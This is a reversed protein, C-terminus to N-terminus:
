DLNMQRLLAAFRPDGRLPDYVPEVKLTVMSYVREQYAKRLWHLARDHDALGVYAIAVSCPSVYTGASGALVSRVLQMADAKRGAKAWTSALM